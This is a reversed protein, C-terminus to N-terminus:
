GFLTLIETKGFRSRPIRRFAPILEGQGLRRRTPEAGDLEDIEFRRLKVAWWMTPRIDASSTKYGGDPLVVAWGGKQLPLLTAALSHTAGDWLRVTDDDGGTALTHGDPSFAVSLVGTTHGALTAIQRGTAVEWLRVTYDGGGTALIHGDPSFAVSQIGSPHDTLSSRGTFPTHGALTAIQRGTAVEWLGVIHDAYGAALTHGDPSFAVSSV